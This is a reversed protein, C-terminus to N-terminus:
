VNFDCVLTNKWGSSKICKRTGDPRGGHQKWQFIYLPGNDVELRLVNIGLALVQQVVIFNQSLFFGFFFFVLKNFQTACFKVWFSKFTNFYVCCFGNASNCFFSFFFSFPFFFCYFIWLPQIQLTPSHPFVQRDLDDFTLPLFLGQRPVMPTPLFLVKGSLCIGNNVNVSDQHNTKLEPHIGPM